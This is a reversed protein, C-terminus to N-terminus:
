DCLRGPSLCYEGSFLPCCRYGSKYRPCEEGMLMDELTLLRSPHPAAVWAPSDGMGTEECVVYAWWWVVDLRNIHHSKGEWGWWRVWWWGWWRLWWWM